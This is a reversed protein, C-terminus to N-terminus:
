RAKRRTRQKAKRRAARRNKRRAARRAARRHSRVWRQAQKHWRRAKVQLKPPLVTPIAFVPQPANSLVAYAFASGLVRKVYRRTERFPITEVFQDTPLNGRQRVWSFVKTEGANYAAVALVMQGEYLRLLWGLYRTGIPVNREPRKLAAATIPQRSRGRFRHATQRLLQMLGVANAHSVLRPNFASEERMLGWVLAPPLGQRKAHPAVLHAYGRPFSIQWRARNKGRPARRAYSRLAHRVMWHSKHILGARDYLVAAAWLRSKRTASLKHGRLATASVAGPAPPEGLVRVPSFVGLAHLETAALDGLGLRAYEVARAFAPRRYLRDPGFRLASHGPRPRWAALIKRATEPVQRQLRNLSLLAYWTMPFRRAVRAWARRAEAAKGQRALIRGLWYGARGADEVRPPPQSIQTARQFWRRARRLDGKVYAAWALQWLADHQRDGHPFRDPLTALLRDAQTVRGRARLLTARRFRADDAYSHHPFRREVRAFLREAAPGKGLAALVKAQSYTTKVVLDRLGARGCAARAERLLPLARARFRRKRALRRGLTATALCRARQSCGRRRGLPDRRVSQLAQTLRGRRALATIRQLRQDCTLPSVLRKQSAPLRARLTALAARAKKAWVTGPAETLVQQLERGAARKRSRSAHAGSQLVCQGFRVRAEATGHRGRHRRLFTLYIKEAQQFRGLARLLDGHLLLSRHALAGTVQVGRLLALAQHHLGLHYYCRAAFYAASPWLVPYRKRLGLFLPAAEAYRQQESLLWALVFEVREPHPAQLALANEAAKLAQARSGLLLARRLPETQPARFYPTVRDPLFLGGQVAALRPARARSPSPMSRPARTLPKAVATAPSAEAESSTLAAPARTLWVLGFFTVAASVIALTLTRRKTV